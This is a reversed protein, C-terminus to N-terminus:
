FIRYNALRYALVYSVSILIFSVISRMFGIATALSYQADILGIRYVLTDIIDGTEYVQPSYLNFIQDFGANLVNGLSLTVMLVIIPTIAPLTISWTQRWRGAGDVEAAEYLNPNIGALSALYVITSFGFEKWTDSIVIVYPFWNNSGLFFIPKIGFLGLFQNVVGSSPSLIDILIGGLIVWSLFHPLYVLTQFIRKFMIKRVENLLLAMTVPAILGLVIKMSAIFITNYLVRSIDPFSLVYEFNKWGVFPSGLIGKALNYKQFAMILGFLTGYNYILVLVVSPLLMAHLTWNQNWKSRKSKVAYHMKIEQESHVM